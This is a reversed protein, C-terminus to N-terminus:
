KETGQRGDETEQRVYRNRTEQGRDGIKRRQEKDEARRGWDKTEAEQKGEEKRQGRVRDVTGNVRKLYQLVFDISSGLRVLIMQQNCSGKAANGRRSVARPSFIHPPSPHQWRAPNIKHLDRAGNVSLRSSNNEALIQCVFVCV